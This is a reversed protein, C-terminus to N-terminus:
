RTRTGEYVDLRFDLIAEKLDEPLTLFEALDSRIQWVGGRDNASLEVVIEGTHPTFLSRATVNGPWNYAEPSPSYFLEWVIGRSDTFKKGPKM